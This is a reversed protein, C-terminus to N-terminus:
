IYIYVVRYTHVTPTWVKTRGVGATGAGATGAGRGAIGGRRDISPGAAGATRAM